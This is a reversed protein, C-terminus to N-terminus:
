ESSRHAFASHVEVYAKWGECGIQQYIDSHTHRLYMADYAHSGSPKGHEAGGGARVAFELGGRFAIRADHECPSYIKLFKFNRIIFVVLIVSSASNAASLM